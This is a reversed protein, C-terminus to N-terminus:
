RSLAPELSGDNELTRQLHMRLERATADLNRTGGLKTSADSLRIWRQPDELISKVAAVIEGRQGPHMFIAADSGLTRRIEGVDTLLLPLGFFAAEYVVKPFGEALSPLLFCDAEQYYEYLRPGFPVVGAFSVRGSVGAAEAIRELRALEPGDGVITLTVTPPLDALAEIALDLGKTPSLRCVSLLRLADGPPQRDIAVEDRDMLSVTFISRLKASPTALELEAHGMFLAPVGRIMRDHLREWQRAVKVGMRTSFSANSTTETMWRGKRHCLVPRRLLQACVFAFLAYVSPVRILVLDARKVGAVVSNMSALAGFPSRFADLPTSYPARGSVFLQPHSIDCWDETPAQTEMPASLEVDLDDALARWLLGM